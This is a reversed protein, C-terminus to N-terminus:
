PERAVGLGAGFVGFSLSGPSEELVKGYKQLKGGSALADQNLTSAAYPNPNPTSPTSPTCPTAKLTSRSRPVHIGIETIMGKDPYQAAYAAVRIGRAQRRPVNM